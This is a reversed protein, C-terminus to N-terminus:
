VSVDGSACFRFSFCEAVGGHLGNYDVRPPMFFISGGPLANKTGMNPNNIGVPTLKM